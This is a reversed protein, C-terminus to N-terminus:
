RQYHSRLLIGTTIALSAVIVVFTTLFLLLSAPYFKIIVTGGIAGAVFVMAVLYILAEAKEIKSM